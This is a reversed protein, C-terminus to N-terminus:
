LTAAKQTLTDRGKGLLIMYKLLSM